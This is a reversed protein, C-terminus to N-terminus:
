KRKKGEEGKGLEPEGKFLRPLLVPVGEDAGDEGASGRDLGVFRPGRVVGRLGGVGTADEEDAVGEM